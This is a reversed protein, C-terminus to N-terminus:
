LRGGAQFAWLRSSKLDHHNIHGSPLAESAAIGTQESESPARRSRVKAPIERAPHGGPVHPARSRRWCVSGAHIEQIVHIQGHQQVLLHFTGLESLRYCNGSPYLLQRKTVAVYEPRVGSIYPQIPWSGAWGGRGFLVNLMNLTVVCGWSSIRACCQPM